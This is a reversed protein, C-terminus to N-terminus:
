DANIVYWGKSEKILTLSREEIDLKRAIEWGTAGNRLFIDFRGAAAPLVCTKGPGALGTSVLVSGIFIQAQAKIDTKNQLKIENNTM